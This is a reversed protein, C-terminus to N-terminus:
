LLSTIDEGVLLMRGLEDLKEKESKSINDPLKYLDKMKKYYNKKDKDKIQNLNVSRIEMIKYLKSDEDINDFLSKFEWWHLNDRQLNINYSKMFSAFIIESDHEYDYIKKVTKKGSSKNTNNNEEQEEKGCKYFWMIKDVAAELNSPIIPYYLILTQYLRERESLEPDNILLEFMMSIRFDSNIEFEVDDIIVTTPVEDILLNM